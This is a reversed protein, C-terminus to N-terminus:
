ETPHIRLFATLCEVTTALPAEDKRLRSLMIGGELAAVVHNAMCDPSLDRRVEGARQAAAIVEKLRAVWQAFVDQVVRAYAVDTDSMELATNGFICGGVFGAERHAALVAGMFAILREGPTAGVLSKDLFTVFRVRARELVALGLDEKGPFHHYLSGKAVGTAALLDRVSTAGLGKINILGTAEEILREKTAEGRSV